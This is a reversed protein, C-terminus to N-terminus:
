CYIYNTYLILALLEAEHMVIRVNEENVTFKKREVESKHRLLTSRSVYDDCCSCYVRKGSRIEM